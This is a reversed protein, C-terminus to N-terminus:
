RYSVVTCPAAASWSLTSPSHTKYMLVVANYTLNTEHTSNDMGYSMRYKNKKEKGTRKALWTPLGSKQVKWDVYGKADYTCVVESKHQFRLIYETDRGHCM